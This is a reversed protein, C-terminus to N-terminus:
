IVNILSEEIENRERERRKLINFSFLSFSFLVVIIMCCLLLVLHYGLLEFIDVADMEALVELITSKIHGVFAVPALAVYLHLKQALSPNL